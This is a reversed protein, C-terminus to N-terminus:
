KGATERYLRQGVSRRWRNIHVSIYNNNVNYKDNIHVNVQNNDNINYMWEDDHINIVIIITYNDKYKSM